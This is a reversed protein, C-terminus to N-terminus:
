FEFLAGFERSIDRVATVYQIYKKIYGKFDLYEVYSKEINYFKYSDGMEMGLAQVVCPYVPMVSKQEEEIKEIGEEEGMIEIDLYKAIENALYFCLHCSFRTGDVFVVTKRYNEEIFGKIPFSAFRDWVGIKKLEKEFHNLIEQKTWYDNGSVSELIEDPTYGDDMMHNVEKDGRLWFPESQGIRIMYENEADTAQMLQGWFYYFPMSVKKARKYFQDILREYNRQESTAANSTNYFIVDCFIGYGKLRRNDADNCPSYISDMYVSTFYQQTYCKNRCLIKVTNVVQCTGVAIFLKKPCMGEFGYDKGGQRKEGWLQEATIFDQERHFIVYPEKQEWIDSPRIVPFGALEDGNESDSIFGGVCYGKECMKCFDISEDGTGWIWINKEELMTQYKWRYYQIVYLSDIYDKGWEFGKNFFLNDYRGREEHDCCLVVLFKQEVILFERFTVCKVEESGVFFEDELSVSSELNAAFCYKIDLTRHFQLYFRRCSDRKGMLAIKRDAFNVETMGDMGIGTKRDFNLAM